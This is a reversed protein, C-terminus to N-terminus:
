SLPDEDMMKQSTWFATREGGHPLMLQKVFSSSNPALSKCGQALFVPNRYFCCQQRQTGGQLVTYLMSIKKYMHLLHYLLEFYEKLYTLFLETRALVGRTQKEREYAASEGDRKKEKREEWAMKQPVCRQQTQITSVNILSGCNPCHSPIQQPRLLWKVSLLGTKM